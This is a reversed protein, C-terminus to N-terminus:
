NKIFKEKQIKMKLAKCWETGFVPPRLSAGSQQINGM